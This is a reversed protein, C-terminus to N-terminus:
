SAIAFEKDKDSLLSNEILRWDMALLDDAQFTGKSQSRASKTRTRFSGKEILRRDMALLDDARLIGLLKSASEKTRATPGVRLGQLTRLSAVALRASSIRAITSPAYRGRCCTIIGNRIAEPSFLNNPKFPPYSSTAPPFIDM